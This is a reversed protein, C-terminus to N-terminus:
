EIIEMEFRTRLYDDSDSGYITSDAAAGPYWMIEFYDGSTVSLVPTSCAHFISGYNQNHLSMMLYGSGNKRFYMKTSDPDASLGVIYAYLRVKTVGAPVTLRSTNSSTSHITDTDFLESAFAIATASGSKTITQEGAAAKYVAAGRYSHTHSNKATAGDCCTNIEAYTATVGDMINLEAAAATVAHLKIFDANACAASHLESLEAATATNADCVSNIEAVTATLGSLTSIELAADAQAATWGLEIVHDDTYTIALASTSEMGRGAVNGTAQHSTGTGVYLTDSGAERRCISIIETNGSKDTLVLRFVNATGNPISPLKAGDGSKLAITTSVATISSALTCSVLNTFKEAM